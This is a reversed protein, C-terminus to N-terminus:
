TFPYRLFFLALDIIIYIIFITVLLYLINIIKELQHELVTSTAFKEKKVRFTKKCNPCRYFNYFISKRATEEVLTNCNPCVMNGLDNSEIM